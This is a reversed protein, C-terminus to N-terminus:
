QNSKQGSYFNASWSFYLRTVDIILFVLPVVFLWVADVAIARYRIDFVHLAGGLSFGIILLYCCAFVLFLPVSFWFSMAALKGRIFRSGLLVIPGAYITAGMILVQTTFIPMGTSDADAPYMGDDFTKTFFAFYFKMHLGAVVALFLLRIIMGDVRSLKRISFKMYGKLM